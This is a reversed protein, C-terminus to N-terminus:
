ELSFTRKAFGIPEESPAKFKYLGPCPRSRKSQRMVEGTFTLKESKLFKGTKSDFKKTWDELINYKAAPSPKTIKLFEDMFSGRDKQKGVAKVVNPIKFYPDYTGTDQIRYYKIGFKPKRMNTQNRLGTKIFEGVSIGKDKERESFNLSSFM